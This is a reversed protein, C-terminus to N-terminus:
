LVVGNPRVITFTNIIVSVHIGPSATSGLEWRGGGSKLVKWKEKLIKTMDSNRVGEANKNAEEIKPLM